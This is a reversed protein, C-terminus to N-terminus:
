IRRHKYGVYVTTDRLGFDGAIMQLSHQMFERPHLGPNRWRVGQHGSPMHTTIRGGSGRRRAIRGAAGPYSAPGERWRLLRGDPGRVATRKREGPKAAKRFILVQKKGSATVRTKAKPNARAEKGLPDNIWMPITKGALKTMTFPNTGAEQFWMYDKNWRVGFFGDGYFPVLGAAGDGSLKPSVRRMQAVAAQAMSRTKAKEYGPAFVYLRNPLSGNRVKPDISAVPVSTRKIIM